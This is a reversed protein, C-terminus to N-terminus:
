YGTSSNGYIKFELCNNSPDFISIFKHESNTNNFRIGYNYNICKEDLIKRLTDLDRFDSFNIGFHNPYHNKKKIENNSKHLVLQISYFNFCIRDEYRRTIKSHPFLLYFDSGKTLDNCGIAVHTTFSM